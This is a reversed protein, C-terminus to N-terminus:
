IFYYWCMGAKFIINKLFCNGCISEFRGDLMCVLVGKNEYGSDVGALTAMVPCFYESM